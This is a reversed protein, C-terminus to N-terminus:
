FLLGTWSRSGAGPMRIYQCSRSLTQLRPRPPPPCRLRAFAQVRGRALQNGRNARRFVEATFADPNGGEDVYKLLEVPVEVALSGRQEALGGLESM